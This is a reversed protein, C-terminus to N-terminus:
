FKVFNFVYCMKKSFFTNRQGYFERWHKIMNDFRPPKLVVGGNIVTVILGANVCFYERESLPTVSM